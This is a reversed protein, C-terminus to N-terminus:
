RSNAIRVATGALFSNDRYRAVPVTRALGQYTNVVRVRQCPVQLAQRREFEAICAVNRHGAVPGARALGQYADVIRM